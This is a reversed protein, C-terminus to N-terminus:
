ASVSPLGVQICLLNTFPRGDKRYNTIELSTFHRERLGSQLLAVKNKDPARGQDISRNPSVLGLLGRKLGCSLMAHSLLQLAM